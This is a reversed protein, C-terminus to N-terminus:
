PIRYSDAFDLLTCKGANIAHDLELFAAARYEASHNGPAWTGASHNILGNEIQKAVSARLETVNPGTDDPGFGMGLMMEDLTKQRM